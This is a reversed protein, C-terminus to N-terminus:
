GIHRMDEEQEAAHRKRENWNHEQVEKYFRKLIKKEEDDESVLVMTIPKEKGYYKDIGSVTYKMKM